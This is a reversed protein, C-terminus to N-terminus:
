VGDSFQEQRTARGSGRVRADTDGGGRPGGRWRGPKWDGAGGEMAMEERSEVVMKRITGGRMWGDGGGPM